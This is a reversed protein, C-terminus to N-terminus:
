AHGMSLQGEHSKRALTSNNTPEESGDEKQEKQAHTENENPQDAFLGKPPEFREAPRHDWAGNHRASDSRFLGGFIRVAKRDAVLVLETAFRIM